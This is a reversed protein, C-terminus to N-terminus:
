IWYDLDRKLAKNGDSWSGTYKHLIIADKRAKYNRGIMNYPYLTLGYKKFIPTIYSAGAIEWINVKKGELSKVHDALGDIAEKLAPHGKVAYITENGIYNNPTTMCILEDNIPLPRLMFSDTDTYIGGYRYLIELRMFDSKLAFSKARDFLDKNVMDPLEEWIKVNYGNRKFTTINGRYERPMPPNLWILHIMPKENALKINSRKGNKRTYETREYKCPKPFLDILEPTFYLTSIYTGEWLHENYSKKDEYYDANKCFLNGYINRALLPVGNLSQEIINHVHLRKEKNMIMPVHISYKKTPYGNDILWQRTKDQGRKYIGVGGTTIEGGQLDKLTTKKTIYIDDNMLIFDDAIRPDNIAVMTKNEVDGYPSNFRGKSSIFTINQFWDERDGIIFIEGNFNNLNQLSRISYRLERGGDGNSKYIYVVPYKKIKSKATSKVKKTAM